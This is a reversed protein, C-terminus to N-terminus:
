HDTMKFPGNQTCLNEAEAEFSVSNHYNKWLLSLGIAGPWMERTLGTSARQPVLLRLFCLGTTSVATSAIYFGATCVSWASAFCYAFILIYNVFLRLSLQCVAASYSLESMM